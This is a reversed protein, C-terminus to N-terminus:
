RGERKGGRRDPCDEERSRRPNDRKAAAKEILAEFERDLRRKKKAHAVNVKGNEIASVKSLAVM